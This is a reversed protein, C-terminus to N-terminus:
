ARFPKALFASAGKRLCEEGRVAEASVVLVPIDCLAPDRQLAELVEEGNMVPMSLDLLIAAPRLEALADLAQRGDHATRLTYHASLAAMEFALVAESDDVLLLTPRSM